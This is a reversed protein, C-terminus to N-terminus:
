EAEEPVPNHVHGNSASTAAPRRCKALAALAAAHLDPNTEEEAARELIPVCWAARLMGLDGILRLRAEDDLLGNARHVREPWSLSAVPEPISVEDPVDDAAEPVDADFAVGPRPPVAVPAPVRVPKASGRRLAVVIAGVIIAVGIVISVVSLVLWM